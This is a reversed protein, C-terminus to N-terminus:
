KGGQKAQSHTNSTQADIWDLVDQNRWVTCKHSLRTPKPFTGNKIMRWLTSRNFPLLPAIDKYRSLGQPFLEQM